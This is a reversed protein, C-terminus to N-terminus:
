EGIALITITENLIYGKGMYHLNSLPAYEGFSYFGIFPTKSGFAEELIEIEKNVSRGLLSYRSFSDTILALTIKKNKKDLNKKAQQAAKRSAELLADKTGLMLRAESGVPINGQCVLTGDDEVASVNRLLYGDEESVYFGLPYLLAIKSLRSQKLDKAEEGFYDQYVKFASKGEITKIRNAQSSTITLPRGLAKWGHGMTVSCDCDGTWLIAVASYSLVQEEFLQFTKGFHGDDASLGGVIPFSAGLTEQIGSILDAPKTILSDSFLSFAHRNFGKTKKVAEQALEQGSLREKGSSIPGKASVGFKIRESAILLVGVAKKYSGSNTIVGAGSSGVLPTTKIVRKVGKVVEPLNYNVTAYVIALSVEDSQLDVKAKFAADRGAEFSNAGIDIGVAVKTQM